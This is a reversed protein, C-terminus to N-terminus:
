VPCEPPAADADPPAEGDRGMDVAADPLANGDRAQSADMAASDTGFSRADALALSGADLALSGADLEHDLTGTEPPESDLGPETAEAEPTTAGSEEADEILCQTGHQM